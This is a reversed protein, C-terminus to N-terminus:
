VLPEHFLNCFILFEFFIKWIASPVTRYCSSIEIKSKFSESDKLTANSEDKCYQWLGGSIKSYNNSYEILDYVTM